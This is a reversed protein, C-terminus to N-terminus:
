SKKKKMIKISVKKYDLLSDYGLNIAKQMNVVESQLKKRDIASLTTSKLEKKKEKIRIKLVEIGQKM